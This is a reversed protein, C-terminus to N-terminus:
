PEVDFDREIWCDVYVVTYGIDRDFHENGSILTFGANQMATKIQRKKEDYDEKTYLSIRYILEEVESVDDSNVATREDIIQYIIYETNDGEYDNRRITDCIHSLANEIKSNM